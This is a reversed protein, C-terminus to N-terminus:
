PDYVQLVGVMSNLGNCVLLILVIRMLQRRTTIYARAWFLPCFIAFYLGIQALGSQLSSTLPHALGMGLVVLALLLFREGPHKGEKRGARDFWWIVFAYLSIAYAGVRLPLRYAQSGPLFLLAPLMTLGLAFWEAFGTPRLSEKDLEDDSESGVDVPEAPQAQRYWDFADPPNPYM